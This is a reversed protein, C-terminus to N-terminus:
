LSLDGVIQPFYSNSKNIVKTMEACIIMVTQQIENFM